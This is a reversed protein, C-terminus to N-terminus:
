KYGGFMLNAATVVYYMNINSTGTSCRNTQSSLAQRNRKWHCLANVAKKEDLPIDQKINIWQGLIEEYKKV